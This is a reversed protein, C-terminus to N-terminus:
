SEAHVEAPTRKQLHPTSDPCAQHMDTASGSLPWLLPISAAEGGDFSCLSLPQEPDRIPLPPLLLPPRLAAPAPRGWV